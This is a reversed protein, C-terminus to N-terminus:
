RRSWDRFPYAPKRTAAEDPLVIQRVGDIWQVAYAPKGIQRGDAAVRYPGLVTLTELERLATRLKNREVGGARKVAAELVQGAAYGGAAPAAPLRDHVSRYREVFERVGPTAIDAEWQSTGMVGEADLSLQAGFESLAPGIAFAMVRAYFRQQRAQRMFAVSDPLYSAGLVIDAKRTKLKIFTSAFDTHGHPYKEEYVVAMGLAKARAKAGAAVDRQYPTDEHILAVRRLGRSKAWGIIEHLQAEAPTYLGFINKPGRSWIETASAGASIMPVGHKEAAASAALTAPSSYPGILVDVKNETLLQEYQQAASEPRSHDDRQRITVRQGLLGGRANVEEVWLEFGHLQEQSATTYIGERAVTMGVVIDPAARAPVGAALGALFSLVLVPVVPAPPPNKLM